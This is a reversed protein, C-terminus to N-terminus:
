EDKLSNKEMRAKWKKGNMSQVVEVYREASVVARQVSSWGAQSRSLQEVEVSGVGSWWGWGGESVVAGSLLKGPLRM